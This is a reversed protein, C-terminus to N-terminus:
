PTPTSGPVELQVLLQGDWSLVANTAVISADFYSPNGPLPNGAFDWQGVDGDPCHISIVARGAVVTDTGYTGEGTSCPPFPGLVSRQGDKFRAFVHSNGYTVWQGDAETDIAGASTWGNRKEGTSWGEFHISEVMRRLIAEQAPVLQPDSPTIRISFAEGDGRFGGSLVGDSQRTLLSDYALPYHSDDAPLSV